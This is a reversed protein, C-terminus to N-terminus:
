NKNRKQIQKYNKQMKGFDRDKKRREQVSSEFHASERSLKLYNQYYSQEIEGNEVAEIVACGKDYVHNCDKFWCRKAFEAIKDYTANLGDSSDVMGVERMGPNDILISGNNLVILERHTSVHRGRDSTLSIAEAKMINKGSLNNLLTSKGVGSSGLMCYTKGSKLVQKLEEYGSETENSIAIFPVNAIRQKIKGLLFSLEESSILDTKTLLIIPSIKSSNCLSLYRELRNINFDRNTSQMILAFDINTGIIQVESNKGVAKRNIISYRPIVENIIAFGDGCFILSVWDGVAPFDERGNASYRMNGTIEAEFEDNSTKVIYREKHESIIRGIELNELKQEISFKELKNNYGLDKLNM